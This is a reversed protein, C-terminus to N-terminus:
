EEEDYEWHREMRPQGTPSPDGWTDTVEWEIGEEDCVYDNVGFTKPEGCYETWIDKNCIKELAEDFDDAEVTYTVETEHICKIDFKAM